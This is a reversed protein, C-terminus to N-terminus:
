VRAWSCALPGAPRWVWVAVIVVVLAVAILNNYSKVIIVISRDWTKQTIRDLHKGAEALNRSKEESNQGIKRKQLRENLINLSLQLNDRVTPSTEILLPALNSMELVPCVCQGCALIQVPLIVASKEKKM